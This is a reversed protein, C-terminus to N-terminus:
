RLKVLGRSQRFEGVELRYYYTGSAAEEGADTRGDWSVTHPGAGIAADMLVRVVRGNLDFVRLKAHAGDRLDFPIATAGREAVFPNPQNQALTFPLSGAGAVGPSEVPEVAATQPCQAPVTFFSPSATVYAYSGSVAVTNVVGGTMMGGVIQPSAPDTIDIVQLGAFRAAVYVHSGSVALNLAGDPLEVSGVIQPSGPNTIEIVYFLHGSDQLVYAYSGSVVVDNAAGQWVVNGAIQPNQPNSVDIVQLGSSRDGVYAHIGSFAVSEATGPTDVSGV